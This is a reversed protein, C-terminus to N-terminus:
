LRDCKAMWLRIFRVRRDSSIKTTKSERNKNEHFVLRELWLGVLHIAERKVRAFRASGFNTVTLNIDVIVFCFALNNCCSIAFPIWLAIFLWRIENMSQDVHSVSIRVLM